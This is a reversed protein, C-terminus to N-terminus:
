FVATKSEVILNILSKTNLLFFALLIKRLRQLLYITWDKSFVLSYGDIQTICKWEIGSQLFDCCIEEMLMSQEVTVENGLTNDDVSVVLLNSDPFHSKIIEVEPQPGDTSSLVQPFSHHVTSCSSSTDHLKPSLSEHFSRLIDLNERCSLIFSIFSDLQQATFAIYSNGFLELIRCSINEVAIWAEVLNCNRRILRIWQM